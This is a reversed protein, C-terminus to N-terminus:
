QLCIQVQNEQQGSLSDKSFNLSFFMQSFLLKFTKFCKNCYREQIYRTDQNIHIIQFEVVKFNGDCKDVSMFLYHKAAIFSFVVCPLLTPPHLCNERSSSKQMSCYFSQLGLHIKHM